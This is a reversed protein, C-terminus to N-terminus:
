DDFVQLLTQLGPAKANILFGLGIFGTMLGIQVLAAHGTPTNLLNLISTLDPM